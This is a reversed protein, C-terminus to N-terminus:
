APKPEAIWCATSSSACTRKQIAQMCNFACGSQGVMLFGNNLDNTSAKLVDTARQGTLYTLDM